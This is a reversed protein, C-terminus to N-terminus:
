PNIVMQAAQSKSYLIVVIGRINPVCEGLPMVDCGPISWDGHWQKQGFGRSQEQLEFDM